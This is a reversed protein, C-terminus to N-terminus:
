TGKECEARLYENGWPNLSVANANAAEYVAHVGNEFEMTVLAQCDGKYEAWAPRWSRCYITKCKAGAISALLDLHHVSGEILLSYPIEHRFDGWSGYRRLDCTYRCSLYDLRGYVGSRILESFNTKDQDFRHSMTVGMRLGAQAVKGAIRISSELTDAIPKESLIHLNHRIAADIVPEHFAPPVVVICFDAPVSAFAAETGTFCRSDPLHLFRRATELCAPNQDVAAAIEITGDAINPPLFQECWWKGWSGVGILIGRKM